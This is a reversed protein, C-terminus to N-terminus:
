SPAKQQEPAVDLWEADPLKALIGAQREVVDRVKFEGCFKDGHGTVRRWLLYNGNPQKEILMPGISTSHWACDEDAPEHCSIGSDREM